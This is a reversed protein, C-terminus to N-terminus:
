ESPHKGGPGKTAYQGHATRRWGWRWPSRFSIASPAGRAAPATAELPSRGSGMRGATVGGTPGRRADARPGDRSLLGGLRHLERRVVVPCRLARPTGAGPGPCPGVRGPHQGGDAVPRSRRRPRSPPAAGSATRPRSVGASRCGTPTCTPGDSASSGSAVGPQVPESPGKRQRGARPPIRDGSTSSSGTRTPTSPRRGPLRPLLMTSPGLLGLWFREVYALTTARPDLGSRGRLVRPRSRLACCSHASPRLYLHADPDPPDPLADAPWPIKRRQHRGPGASPRAVGLRTTTSVPAPIEVSEPIGSKRPGCPTHVFFGLASFSLSM